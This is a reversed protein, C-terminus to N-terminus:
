RPWPLEPFVLSLLWVIVILAVPYLLLRAPNSMWDPLPRTFILWVTELRILQLFFLARRFASVPLWGDKTQKYWGRDTKKYWTGRKLFHRPDKPRYKM